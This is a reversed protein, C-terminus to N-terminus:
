CWTNPSPLILHVVARSKFGVPCVSSISGVLATAVAVHGVQFALIPEVSM